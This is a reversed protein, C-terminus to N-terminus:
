WVGMFIYEKHGNFNGFIFFSDQNIKKEEGNLGTKSKDHIAKIMKKIKSEKKIETSHRRTLGKGIIKSKTQNIKTNSVLSLTTDKNNNNFITSNTRQKSKKIPTKIIDSTENMNQKKARLSPIPKASMCKSKKEPLHHYAFIQQKLKIASKKIFPIHERQSTSLLKTLERNTKKLTQNLSTSVKTYNVSNSERHTVQLYNSNVKCPEKKPISFSSNITTNNLTMNPTYTEKAPKIKQFITQQQPFFFNIQKGCKSLVKGGRSLYGVKPQIKTYNNM